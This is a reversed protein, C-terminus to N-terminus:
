PPSAPHNTSPTLLTNRNFRFTQPPEAPCYGLTPHTHTPLSLKSQLCDRSRRLLRPFPDGALQGPHKQVIGGRRAEDAVRLKDDTLQDGIRELRTRRGHGDGSM